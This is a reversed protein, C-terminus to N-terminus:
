HKFTSRTLNAERFLQFDAISSCWWLWETPCFWWLFDCFIMINQRSFHNESRSDQAADQKWSSRLWVGTCAQTQSGPLWASCGTHQSLFGLLNWLFCLQKLVCRQSWERIMSGEPVVVISMSCENKRSRGFSLFFVTAVGTLNRASCYQVPNSGSGSIMWCDGPSDFSSGDPLRIFLTKRTKSCFNNMNYTALLHINKKGWDHYLLEMPLLRRGDLRGSITGPSKLRSVETVTLSGHRTCAAAGIKDSQNKFAM